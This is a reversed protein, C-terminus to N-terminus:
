VVSKRDKYKVFNRSGGKQAPLTVDALDKHDLQIGGDVVAVIVEPSGGTYEEYVKCVNIDAGAKYGSWQTGDNIIHWQYKMGYPDNFPFGNLNSVCRKVRRVPELIEVGEVGGDAIESRTQLVADDVVARYWRHLGKARHREEWEGADPFMRELKIIGAEVFNAPVGYKEIELATQESVFVEAEGKVFCSEQEEEPNVTREGLKEQKSCSLLAM